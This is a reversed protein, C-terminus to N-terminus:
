SYVYNNLVLMSIETDQITKKCEASQHEIKEFQKVLEEQTIESDDTETLKKMREM